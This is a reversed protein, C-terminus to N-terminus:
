FQKVGFIAALSADVGDLENAVHERVENRFRGLEHTTMNGGHPGLNKDIVFETVKNAAQQATVALFMHDANADDFRPLPVELIKTHIDRAGMLGQSQFPKILKNPIRSNLFGNLFYAENIDNTFFMYTKHDAIFQFDLMTDRDVVVSVTNAGSATYLVVYSSNLKQNSIGQMFNLRKIFSMEKSRETKREEWMSEVGAFWERSEVEGTTEMLKDPRLLKVKGNLVVAPLAVVHHGNLGFPIVNNALATQFLFQTHVTGKLFVDKWPKKAERLVAEASCVRLRRDAFNGDHEQNIDVFFCRRPVITAGQQFSNKYPNNGGLQIKHGLSWASADGLRSLYITDKEITLSQDARARDVNPGKLKGKFNKGPFEKVAVAGDFGRQAFLVCSPVKFLPTVERLDWAETIKVRAAKGERTNSHQGASFFSRPMVFSMRGEPKMFYNVCHGLFLAALELQTRLNPREPRMNYQLAIREVEKQYDRNEIDKFTLWPPNGVVIDFAEHLFFPSYSNNIIYAWISDRGELKAISFAKYLEYVGDLFAEDTNKFRSIIAQTLQKKNRTKGIPVDAAALIDCNFVIDYFRRSDAFISEDVEVMKNDISIKYRNGMLSVARKPLLLTNALYINLAIPQPAAQVRKGLAILLTAKSIQVSLPHVDIGYLCDNLESATIAPNNMILHNSVAKLFSGSGCSPDLVKQGPQPNLEEIVHSCLWDPTYHEGLAHRTDEDVLEQYVGKLIDEKVNTFDFKSFGNAISRFLPKLANHNADQATWRFFDESTFNDIGKKKFAEGSLIEKMEEEDIFDDGTLVEYALMKALISLYSQTLFVQESADFRGYAISLFKHWQDYATQMDSNSQLNTYCEHLKLMAAQFVDSGSGFGKRIEELTAPLPQSNFLYRDLFYYFEDAKAPAVCLTQVCKLEIEEASIKGLGILSKYDLTYINWTLCDTTILTFDVQVGSNWNGCLYDKLQDEAHPGTKTLDHEFEIIVSGYQTDARGRDTKKGKRQIETIAKEAGSTFQEIIGFEDHEGFLQTLLTVLKEKKVQENAANKIGLCYEKILSKRTADPM